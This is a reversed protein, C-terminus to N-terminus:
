PMRGRLMAAVDDWHTAAAALLERTERQEALKANWAPKDTILAQVNREVLDALVKPNLADLEWSSAGFKAAYDRYRADTQKAPNPPPAYKRIQDMNLAIRYVKIKDILADLDDDYAFDDDDTKAAFTWLREKIDRTMDIGSPDHDGFHLIAVGDKGGDLKERFRQGAAWMESDSAYGRCSFFPVDLRNAAREFVNLLADKEFWVEVHTPQTQWLAFRFQAAIAVIIDQASDWHPLDRLERTLDVIASWDILGQRRADSILSGLRDYSQVTNPIVNRQVLQYYLQRLTLQFGDAVYEDVIENAVAVLALRDGKIRPPEYTIVPM